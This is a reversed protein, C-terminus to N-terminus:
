REITWFTEETDIRLDLLMSIPSDCQSCNLRVGPLRIIFVCHSARGGNGDRGTQGPNLLADDSALATGAQAGVAFANTLSLALCVPILGVPSAGYGAEAIWPGTYENKTESGSGVSGVACAPGERAVTGPIKHVGYEVFGAEGILRLTDM